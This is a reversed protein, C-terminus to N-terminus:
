PVGKPVVCGSNKDFFISAKSVSVVGGGGGGGGVSPINYPFIGCITSKVWRLRFQAAVIM